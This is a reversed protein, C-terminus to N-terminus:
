LTREKWTEEMLAGYYKDIHDQKVRKLEGKPFVSLLKWALDLTEEISRDTQGQNLFQKEFEDAFRLYLRDRDTLAEEGIIAVLRRLDIGNAYASYLQDRLGGHDERTRGKGIGDNMLRSLSRLPTIPPYIGLRHLERSLIIQGETIYGTLDAIPHTIDDDPMTLIPLQTISGKRGHIRGAREYITALDTYMYGPYGRRGPIEERAAGIERLAECNSVVLGNEILFKHTGDVTFDYVFGDYDVEEVSKVPDLIFEGSLMRELEALTRGTSASNREIRTKLVMMNQVSTRRLGSELHSMTSSAALRNAELGAEPRAAKLLAAAARPALDHRASATRTLSDQSFRALKSPHNTGVLRYFALAENKGGLVVSYVPRGRNSSTWTKAVLGLRRLLQQIRKARLAEVTTYVVRSGDAAVSGDGDFYGRLFAAVLRDSLRMIPRFDEHIGLSKAFAVLPLSNIRLMTVGSQNRHRQISLGPFMQGILGEFEALLAPEENSFMVYYAHQAHNEYVTGDSAVLGFAYLLREFDFDPSVYIRGRKGCSISQIIAALDANAIGLDDRIRGLEDVTLCRKSFADTFRPYNLQLRDAAERLTGYKQKLRHEISQDRLHVFCDLDGLLEFLTPELGAISLKRAAYVANGVQLQSAPKMAPGEHTDVLIKHDPTVAFESGSGTRIKVLKGRYRIKQVDAIPAAVSKVGDWSMIRPRGLPRGAYPNGVVREVFNGIQTITGDALVVETDPHCCYNTMDTLIVLVQMDLDFALYEAATLAVRPTILREIAPDDALNLFVVSRALAGTSEFQDIFFAAERQTIGMAAFVVSFQEATGLVKAQRAIQAAINNHPLGAGSFIPLKQGRVLTNLGDISSIGTQIFEQPRQRAVPNIPAGIIPLRQDPIIPPLGDIPDGLGSFRRGIIERSVGLRAVDERLSISTKALDLGRTEEFVQIVAHRESVEVVQGGRVTDDPLHINVIAGYALDKAGEVFLLPGSIYSISQYRKTTLDM